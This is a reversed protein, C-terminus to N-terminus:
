GIEIKQELQVRLDRIDKELKSMRKTKDDSAEQEDQLQQELMNIEENINKKEVELERCFYNQYYVVALLLLHLSLHLTPLLEQYFFFTKLKEVELFHTCLYEKTCFLKEKSKIHLVGCHWPWNEHPWQKVLRCVQPRRHAQQYDSHPAGSRWLSTQTEERDDSIRDHVSSETDAAPTGVKLGLYFNIPQTSNKYTGQVYVHQNGKM